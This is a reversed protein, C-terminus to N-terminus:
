ESNCRREISHKSAWLLAGFIARPEMSFIFLLKTSCAKSIIINRNPIYFTRAYMPLRKFIFYQNASSLFFYAYSLHLNLPENQAGFSAIWFLSHSERKLCNIVTASQTCNTKGEGNTSLLMKGSPQTTARKENISQVSQLARNYAYM